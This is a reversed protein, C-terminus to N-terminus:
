PGAGSGYRGNLQVALHNKLIKYSPLVIYIGYPVTRYPVPVQQDYDGDDEDNLNTNNYLDALGPGDEEDEEDEEEDDVDEDEEEDGDELNALLCYGINYLLENM